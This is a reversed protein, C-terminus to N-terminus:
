QDDQPLNRVARLGTVNGNTEETGGSRAAIRLRTQTDAWSGGRAVRYESNSHSFAGNGPLHEVRDYSANLDSTWEDVNGHVDHLGWANPRYSGVPAHSAYGDNFDVASQGDPNFGQGLAARDLINAYGQLSAVDDGTFYVTRTGARAACEWQAETPLVLNITALERTADIWTVNEVPHRGIGSKGPFRQASFWAPNFGTIQKWQSQTVEHKGILYASLTVEHPPSENPLAQPDLNPGAPQLVSEPRRAGMVYTSSPILVFVMASDLNVVLRGAADREPVEGTFRNAFEHLGSDPDAGLPVLDKQVTLTLGRYIPRRAVDRIVDDWRAQQEEDLDRAMSRAEALWSRVRQLPGQRRETSESFEGLRVVLESLTDHEWRKTDDEFEWLRRENVRADMQDTEKAFAERFAEGQEIYSDAAGDEFAADLTAEIAVLRDRRLELMRAERHRARNRAQALEDYPLAQDRLAALRAQHSPARNVLEEARRLWEEYAPVAAASVPPLKEADESLIRVLNIDSLRRTEELSADLKRAQEKSAGLFHVTLLLGGLLSLFILSLSAALVPNRQAWRRFRLFRSPPRALIPQLQRVRRLDEALDKASQYRRKPDKELAVELVVALDDPLAGNLKRPDTPLEDLLDKRLAEFTMGRFPRQMTVCEYLVVGLSFLDTRRDVTAGKMQEPSMYAPTGLVDGTMTLGQSEDGLDRALGFDLIVPRGDVGVMINGPKIDRHVLGAEHAVHLAEACRQILLLVEDGARKRPARTSVEKTQIETEDVLPVFSAESDGDARAGVIKMALSSGEVFRMAIYALGDAKGFDYITCIGPHDLKSSLEAERHFRAKVVPNRAFQPPLIKLALRRSLRLDEALYVEGQGGRGLLEVIRYPGLRNGGFLFSDPAPRTAGGVLTPQDGSSSKGRVVTPEDDPTGQPPDRPPHSDATDDLM